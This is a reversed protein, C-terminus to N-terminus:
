KDAKDAKPPRGRRKAPKKKPTSPKPSDELDLVEEVEAEVVKPAEAKAAEAVAPKKDAVFVWAPHKALVEELGAPLQSILSGDAAVMLRVRGVRVWSQRPILSTRRTYQWM